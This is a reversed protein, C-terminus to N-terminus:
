NDHISVISIATCLEFVIQRTNRTQINKLMLNKLLSIVRLIIDRLAYTNKIIQPFINIKVVTGTSIYNNQM